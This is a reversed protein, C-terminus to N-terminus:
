EDDSEEDKKASTKKKKNTKKKVDKALPQELIKLIEEDTIKKDSKIKSLDLAPPAALKQIGNKTIAIICQLYIDGFCHSISGVLLLLFVVLQRKTKTVLLRTNGSSTVAFASLLVLRQM